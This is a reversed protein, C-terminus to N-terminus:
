RRLRLDAIVPRHDSASADGVFCNAVEIDPSVLVHDIRLYSVGLRMTHGYTYGYGKGAASFADRLGTALLTRIVPSTEPANMDGAVVLPRPLRTAGHALAVAQTLRDSYNQLWEGTADTQGGRVAALGSRPSKFHAVALNLDIGNVDVVCNLYRHKEDRFDIQGPECRRLPYRSAVIYQSLAYVHALGFLPPSGNLPPAGRENVLGDADQMVVIDPEHRVVEWALAVFDVRGGAINGAKINYTMLRVRESAPQVAHWTIGMTVTALLLLNGVSMAAWLRGLQLSVMLAAVSPVLLWYYPLYRSLEIWWSGAGALQQAATLVAFGAIVAVVGARALLDLYRLLLPKM